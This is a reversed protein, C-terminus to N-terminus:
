KKDTTILKAAQQDIDLLSKTAAESLGSEALHAMEVLATLKQFCMLFDDVETRLHDHHYEMEKLYGNALSLITQELKTSDGNNSSADPNISDNKTNKM